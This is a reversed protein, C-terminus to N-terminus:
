RPNGTSHSLFIDINLQAHLSFSARICRVESEGYRFDRPNPVSRAPDQEAFGTMDQRAEFRRGSLWQIEGTSRHSHVTGLRYDYEIKYRVVAIFDGWRGDGMGWGGDATGTLCVMDRMGACDDM